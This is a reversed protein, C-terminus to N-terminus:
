ELLEAEAVDAEVPEREPRLAIYVGVLVLVSGVVELATPTEDLIWAALGTAIAPEGLIAMAVLVAPVYGLAFNISSHGVLQPGLALLGLMVYTKTSYGTFPEQAILTAVILVVATVPYVIGIYRVWSVTPRAWRGVMLYGAAFAGGLVAYLDGVVMSGAEGLHESAMVVGGATAIAIAVWVRLAVPEKLLVPSAVAVFLPQTTMLVVATVVSTQQLSAIWFAFHGALLVGSLVMGQLERGALPAPRLRQQVLALAGVPVAAFGLRYSAIVLAPADAQRVLIAAWSIATVGLALVGYAVWVNVRM